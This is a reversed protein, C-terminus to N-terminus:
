RLVPNYVLPTSFTYIFCPRYTMVPIYKCRVTALLSVSKCITEVLALAVLPSPITESSQSPVPVQIM